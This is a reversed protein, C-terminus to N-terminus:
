EYFHPGLAKGVPLVTNMVIVRDLKSRFGLDVPLTLGLTAGWDQVVLTINRCAAHEVFRLLFERHFHFTYISDQVPKDSRGFGFFGPAIVRAGSELMVPIMKRYLYSWTPEGHLCLFTREADKPGLNLYHARLGEYGPLSDVYHPEYQYDPLGQFRTDPTRLAEIPKVFDENNTTAIPSLHGQKMKSKDHSKNDPM